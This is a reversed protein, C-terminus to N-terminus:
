PPPINLIKPSKPNCCCTLGKCFGGTFGLSICLTDCDPVIGSHCVGPCEDNLGSRAESGIILFMVIVSVAIFAYPSRWVDM